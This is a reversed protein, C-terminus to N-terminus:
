GAPSPGSSESRGLRWYGFAHLDERAVGRDDAAFRRIARIESAEGAAWVEVRGAPWELARASRALAETTGAAAGDRHLWSLKLDAPTAVPQEEAADAVEVYAVVPLGAPTAEMISALAPLGTEDSFMVLADTSCSPVAHPRPGTFDITDGPTATLAWRVFPGDGHLVVDIDLSDAAADYRRITYTRSPTRMTGVAEPLDAPPSLRMVLNPCSGDIPLHPSDVACSV